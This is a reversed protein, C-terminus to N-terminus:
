LITEEVEATEEIVRIVEGDAQVLGRYVTEDLEGSEFFMALQTEPDETSEFPLDNAIILDAITQYSVGDYRPYVESVKPTKSTARLTPSNSFIVERTALRLVVTGGYDVDADKLLKRIKGVIADHDIEPENYVFKVNGDKLKQGNKVVSKLNVRIETVVPTFDVVAAEFIAERAENARGQKEAVGKQNGLNDLRKACAKIQKSDLGGAMMLAMIEAMSLAYIAEVTITSTM